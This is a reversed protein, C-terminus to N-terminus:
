KTAKEIVLRGAKIAGVAVYGSLIINCARWIGAAGILAVVDISANGYVINTGSGQVQGLASILYDTFAGLGKYAVFSIGLAAIMQAGKSVVWATLSTIIVGGLSAGLLPLPM